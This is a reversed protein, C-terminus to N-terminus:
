SGPRKFLAADLPANIKIGTIRRELILEGGRRVKALFAIQVADVPRYESFLEEVLPQGPGGVVYMQKAILHTAPDIHLVIPDLDSASLELAHHLKGTEDKVDPLLRSRVTGDHAALLASVTDRRFGLELERIMAAPVEFTGRPDKVWGRKGDFVRVVLADPLKTEVHVRNPYQLFTTTEVSIRGEQTSMDERTMATISQVARLTELGGKAAIVKDLLTRAGPGDEPVIAGRQQYSAVVAGGAWGAGGARGAEGARGAGGAPAAGGARGIQGVGGARRAQGAGEAEGAQRTGGAGGAGRARGARPVRKFDVATLDLNASEISEFTSFGVRPLQSTFTSANGVLVISLRDPRLYFRAVREIDDPTVANVRQRFSQLDEIPLGYFLVNLIQTAIADPTEITLPFSGALYAKADSLERESVRERQLRWFEDVMLRLVEGTADSRTNTSAEIAGSERRTDMDAQAGYTLGRATRLIQHLRNAGEGGLIRVALNLAMYDPHNRRIGIHGVRVETQVADPRNVVIVRRTPDPPPTFTDAPVARREWDGFVRKVGEFAEEATLDGVVAMITNNPVFNRQHFAVIDDRAIAAISEPTGTQPMGYPHLGYALRDFVSNAIFEPDEVSVKLSSLMQQRGREIEEPAFTPRRALDSLMSLGLGLSDKMVVMNIFSLDTGAGAGMDGGVFDITENLEGASKGGAGQTLLSAVLQALGHKGKPDLAGGARVIMRMSVVPQEHHLVVVVQLGNPLTQLFYPPFPVDRAALPRPPGESPWRAQAAASSAGLALMLAGACIDLPLRRSTFTM